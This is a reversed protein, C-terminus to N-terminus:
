SVHYDAGTATGEVIVPEVGAEAAADPDLAAVETLRVTVEVRDTLGGSDTAVVAFSLEDEGQLEAPDAVRITGDAPDVALASRAANPGVLRYSVSDGADPDSAAVIGVIEGVGASRPLEFSRDGGLRPAENVSSVDIRLLGTEPVKGDDARVRLLYSEAGEADLLAANAVRVVGTSADIAFVGRPDGDVISYTYDRWPPSAIVTAVRSNPAADEAVSVTSFAPLTAPSNDAVGGSEVAGIDRQGDGPVFGLQDIPVGVLPGPGALVAPSTSGALPHHATAGNAVPWAANLVTAVATAFTQTNTALGLTYPEAAEILNTTSEPTFATAGEVTALTAGDLQTNAAFLTKISTVPVGAASLGAGQNARNYAVTVNTLGLTAGPDASNTRIAGGSRTAGATNQSFTTNDIHATMAGELWLGGGDSTADNAVFSSREIAVSVGDVAGANAALGAGNDAHNGGFHTTVVSVDTATAWVGGGRGSAAHNDTFRADRVTLRGGVAAVGGGDVTAVNDLVKVGVLTLDGASHIAGGIDALGGRLTIDQLTASVRPALTFLRTALGGDIVVTKGGDISVATEIPYEATPDIQTIDADFEIRDTQEDTKAWLLAEALTLEGDAANLNPAGVGASSVTIPGDGFLDRK